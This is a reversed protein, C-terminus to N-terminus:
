FSYGEDKAIQRAKVKDGGARKLIEMAIDQTLKKDVDGLKLNNEDKIINAYEELTKILNTKDTKEPMKGTLALVIAADIGGGSKAKDIAQTVRVFEKRAQDKTM